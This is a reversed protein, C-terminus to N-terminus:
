HNFDKHRNMEKSLEEHTCDGCFYDDGRVSHEDESLVIVTGCQACKTPEYSPPNPLKEFNYENTGYWVYIETEFSKSCKACEKWDGAHKETHHYACLTYHDHNRYCSNRAYSFLVYKHSDDCIWNDCCETKTLKRTKGCLGCRQKATIKRAKSAKRPM